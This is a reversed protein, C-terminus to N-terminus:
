YIIQVKVRVISWYLKSNQTKVESISTDVLTAHRFILDQNSTINPYMANSNVLMGREDLPFLGSAYIKTSDPIVITKDKQLRLIDAINNREYRTQALVHFMVDQTNKNALTGLEFPKSTTNSVPEIIICPLQCRNTSALNYDGTTLNQAWQTDAPNFSDYNVEFWWNQDDATYTQVARTSYQATVTKGAQSSNFIVRGNPYDIYHEFGSSGTTKPSGNVYVQATLPNHTGTTSAYNVGTEYVIDKRITQYVTNNSYSKDDVVHLTSLSGGHSGQTGTTINNFAGIKLLSWDLWSKLGAELEATIHPKGYHSCARFSQFDNDSM